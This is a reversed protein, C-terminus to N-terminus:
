FRMGCRMCRCFCMISYIDFNLTKCATKEFQFTINTGEIGNKLIDLKKSFHGIFGFM